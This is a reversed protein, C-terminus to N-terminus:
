GLGWDLIRRARIASQHEFEGRASVEEQGGLQQRIEVVVWHHLDEDNLRPTPERSSADGEGVDDLRFELLHALFTLTGHCSVSGPWLSQTSEQGV